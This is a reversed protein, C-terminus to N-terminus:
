RACLVALIPRAPPDHHTRAFPAPCLARPELSPAQTVWNLADHMAAINMEREEQESGRMGAMDAMMHMHHAHEGQLDEGRAALWGTMFEIEDAQSAMIRDSIDIIEPTNTSGAALRAMDVAQGHHPIMGRMFLVDDRTYSTDAINAAQQADLRRVPEGPAGPQVIPVTQAFAAGAALVATSLATLVTSLLYKNITNKSNIM